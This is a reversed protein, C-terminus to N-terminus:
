RKMKKAVKLQKKPPLSALYNNRLAQMEALVISGVEAFTERTPKQGRYASLDIPEGTLIKNWRFFKPKYLMVSPIIPADAKLAFMAVGNKIADASGIDDKRTGEPFITIQKDDKLKGLVTKITSLEVADRNVPIAGLMRFFAASFKNKFMTHKALVYRYTHEHLKLIVIDWNSTHNCVFLAKGRYRFNRKNVVITPFCLRVPLYLISWFIWYCINM